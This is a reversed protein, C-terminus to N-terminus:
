WTASPTWPRTGTRHVMYAVASEVYRKMLFVFRIMLVPTQISSVVFSACVALVCGLRKLLYSRRICVISGKELLAESLAKDPMRELGLGKLHEPARQALTEKINALSLVGAAELLSSVFKVFHGKETPGFHTPAPGSPGGGGGGRGPADGAGTPSPSLGNGHFPDRPADGQGSFQSFLIPALQSPPLSPCSPLLFPTTNLSLPISFM